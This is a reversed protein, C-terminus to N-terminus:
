VLANKTINECCLGHESILPISVQQESVLKIFTPHFHMFFTNLKLTTFGFNQNTKPEKVNINM